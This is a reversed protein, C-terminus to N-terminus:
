KEIKRCGPSTVLVGSELRGLEMVLGKLLCWTRVTKVANKIERGNLEWKALEVLDEESINRGM